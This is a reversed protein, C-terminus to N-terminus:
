DASNGRIANQVDEPFHSIREENIAKHDYVGEPDMYTLLWLFPRETWVPLFTGVSKLAEIRSKVGEKIDHHGVWVGDRTCGSGTYRFFENTELNNPKINYYVNGTNLGTGMYSEATMLMGFEANWLVTFTENPAPESCYSKGVFKHEFIPVFGMEEAIYLLDGYPMGYHSDGAATLLAKKREVNGLHGMFGITMTAEDDKYSKGTIKEAEYLSDYNLANLVDNFDAM